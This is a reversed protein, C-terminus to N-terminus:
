PKPTDLNKICNRLQQTHVPAIQEAQKSMQVIARFSPADIGADAVVNLLVDLDARLKDIVDLIALLADQANEVKLPKALVDGYLFQQGKLTLELAANHERVYGKSIIEAWAQRVEEDRIFGAEWVVADGFNAPHIMGGSRLGREHFCNLIKRAPLSLEDTMLDM